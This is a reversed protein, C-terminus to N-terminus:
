HNGREILELLERESPGTTYSEEIEIPLSEAAIVATARRLVDEATVESPRKLNCAVEYAVVPAPTTSLSPETSTSTSTSQTTHSGDHRLTLAEVSDSRVAATVRRILARDDGARFRMNFNQIFPVAGVLTVGKRESLDVASGLFPQVPLVNRDAAGGAGSASSMVERMRAVIRSVKTNETIKIDSGSSIETGTGANSDSDNNDKLPSSFPAVLPSGDTAGKEPMSAIDFYGLARRLDKLAIKSDNASGYTFVPLREQAYLRQAFEKAM